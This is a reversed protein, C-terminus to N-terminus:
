DPTWVNTASQEGTCGMDKGNVIVPQHPACPNISEESAVPQIAWVIFGIFAPILLYAILDAKYEAWELDTLDNM